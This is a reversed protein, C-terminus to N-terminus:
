LLIVGFDSAAKDCLLVKTELKVYDAQSLWAHQAQDITSIAPM